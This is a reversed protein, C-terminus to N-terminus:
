VRAAKPMNSWALEFVIKLFDAFTQSQIEFAINEGPKSLVGIVKDDFINIEGATSYNDNWPLWRYETNEQKEKNSKYIKDY